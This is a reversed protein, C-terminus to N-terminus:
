RRAAPSAPRPAPSSIRARWRAWSPCSWTPTRISAARCSTDPRRCRRRDRRRACRPEDGVARIEGGDCYCTPACADPEATVVTGGRILVSSMTETERDRETNSTRTSAAHERFDRSRSRRAARAPWRCSTRRRSCRRCCCTAAPRSGSPSRTRSRTTASATRHVARLDDRDARRAGHLVADHGAGRSSTARAVYGLQTRAPACRRSAARRRLARAAYYSSRSRPRHELRRGRAISRSAQAAARADM